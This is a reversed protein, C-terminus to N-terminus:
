RKNGHRVEPDKLAGLMIDLTEQTFATLIREDNLALYDDNLMVLFEHAFCLEDFPSVIQEFPTTMHLYRGIAKISADLEGQRLPCESFKEIQIIYEQTDVFRSFTLEVANITMHVFLDGNDVGVNWHINFDMM